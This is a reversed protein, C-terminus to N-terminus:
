NPAQGRLSAAVLVASSCFFLLLPREPLLWGSQLVKCAALQAPQKARGHQMICYLADLYPSVLLVVRWACASVAFRPASARPPASPSASMAWVAGRTAVLLLPSYATLRL